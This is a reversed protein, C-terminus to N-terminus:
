WAWSGDDGGDSEHQVQHGDETVEHRRVRSDHIRQSRSYPPRSAVERTHRALDDFRQTPSPGSTRQRKVESARQGAVKEKEKEKRARREDQQGLKRASPKSKAIRKLERVLDSAKVAKATGILSEVAERTEAADAQRILLQNFDYMASAQEPTPGLLPTM